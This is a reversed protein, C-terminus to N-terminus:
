FHMSVCCLLYAPFLIIFPLVFAVWSFLDIYCTIYVTLSHCALKSRHAIKTAFYCQSQQTFCPVTSVQFPNFVIQLVHTWSDKDLGAILDEPYLFVIAVKGSASYVYIRLFVPCRKKKLHISCSGYNPRANYIYM